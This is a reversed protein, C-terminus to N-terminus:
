VESILMKKLFKQGQLFNRVAFQGIVHRFCVWGYTKTHKQDISTKRDIWEAKTAYYNSKPNDHTTTKTKSVVWIEDRENASHM